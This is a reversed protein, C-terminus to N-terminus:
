NGIFAQEHAANMTLTGFGQNQMFVLFVPEYPVSAVVRIVDYDVGSDSYTSTTVALTSGGNSWGPVVYDGTGDATGTKVLNAITTQVSGSLPLSSRAALMAGVRLSKDLSTSQNLYYGFEFVGVMVLILLPALMAFEVAALARRCFLALKFASLRSRGPIQRPMQRPKNLLNSM